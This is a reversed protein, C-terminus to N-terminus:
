QVSRNESHSSPTTPALLSEFPAAIKIKDRGGVCIDRDMLGKGFMVDCLMNRLENTNSVNYNQYQDDIYIAPISRALSAKRALVHQLKIGDSGLACDKLSEIFRTSNSCACSSDEPSTGRTVNAMCGIFPLYVTPDGNAINIACSHILNSECESEGNPCKYVRTINGRRLEPHWFLFGPSLSNVDIESALGYPVLELTTKNVIDLRTFFEVFGPSKVIDISNTDGAGYVFRVSLRDAHKPSSPNQVDVLRPATSAQSTINAQLVVQITNNSLAKADVVVATLNRGDLVKDLTLSSQREGLQAIVLNQPAAARFATSDLCDSLVSLICIYVFSTFLM